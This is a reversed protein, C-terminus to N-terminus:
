RYKRRCAELALSTVQSAWGRKWEPDRNAALTAFGGSLQEASGNPVEKAAELGAEGRIQVHDGCDCDFD